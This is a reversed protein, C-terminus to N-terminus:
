QAIRDHHHVSADYVSSIWWGKENQVMGKARMEDESLCRRPMSSKLTYEGIRHKDFSGVSKFIRDCGTCLSKSM